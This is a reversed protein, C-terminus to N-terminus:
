LNPEGGSNMLLEALDEAGRSFHFETPTKGDTNLVNIDLGMELFIEVIKRCEDLQNERAWLGLCHFLTNGSETKYHIQDPNNKLIQKVKQSAGLMTVQKINTSYNVLEDVVANQRHFYAWNLPDGEYLLDKATVDAGANVLFKVEVLRGSMAMRHLLTHGDVSSRQTIDFGLKLLIKFIDHNGKDTLEFVLETNKLISLNRKVAVEFEKLDNKTAALVLKEEESLEIIDAGFLVLKEAINSYEHTLANIYHNRNNYYDKSNPDAGHNLLFEVRNFFGQKVAYGLLYNFVTMASEQDADWNIKATEKLGYDVLLKLWTDGSETFQTNYLGQSDNPNAGGELLLSALAVGHPHPPQDISGREGEGMAGTLPTFCYEDGSSIQTNPNAGTNLLIKAISLCANEDKSLRSYCLYNLPTWNMPGLAQNALTPDSDLFQKVMATEDAIIATVINFSALSPYRNLLDSAQKRRKPSDEVSYCLCALRIFKDSREGPSLRDLQALEVADVIEKWSLYGYQRAVVLQADRLGAFSLPRPHFAEVLSKSSAKDDLYDRYLRKANKKLFNLNANKPLQLTM